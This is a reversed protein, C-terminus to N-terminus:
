LSPRMSDWVPIGKYFVKGHKKLVDVVLDVNPKLRKTEKKRDKEDMSIGDWSVPFSIESLKELLLLAHDKDYAVAVSMGNRVCSVSYRKKENYSIKDTTNGRTFYKHAIFDGCRVGSIREKLKFIEGTVEDLIMPHYKTAYPTM